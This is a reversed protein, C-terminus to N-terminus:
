NYLPYSMLGRRVMESEAVAACLLNLLAEATGDDKHLCERRYLACLEADTAIFCVRHFDERSFLAEAPLAM